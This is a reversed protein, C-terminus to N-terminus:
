NRIGHKPDSENKNYNTALTTLYSHIRFININFTRLNFNQLTDCTPIPPVDLRLNYKFDGINIKYLNLRACSVNTIKIQIRQVM